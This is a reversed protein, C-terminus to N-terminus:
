YPNSLIVASTYPSPLYWELKIKLCWQFLAACAQKIQDSHCTTPGTRVNKQVSEQAPLNASQEQLVSPNTTAMPWKGNSNHTKTPSSQPSTPTATPWCQAWSVMSEDQRVKAVCCNCCAGLPAILCPLNYTQWYHSSQETSVWKLVLIKLTIILFTAGVLPHSSGNEWAQILLKWGYWVAPVMECLLYSTSRVVVVQTWLHTIM